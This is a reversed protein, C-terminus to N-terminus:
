FTVNLGVLVTKPLPYRGADVGMTGSLAPEPSMGTYKTLYFLNQGTVYASLNQMKIREVLAKPFRYTLTVERLALYDGKEYFRSSNNDLNASANNSRTINKKALQDAYYFKPLDSNTNTESWMDRVDTIINFSGQYQGLSRARLDNYLTHGVAYDFRAYLSLNKYDFSSSFGGTFKPFVNGIKVRDYSDIIGDGNVDAWHVDGPEIPLYGGSGKKDSDPGYLNAIADVRTGALDRVQDWDKYILEQKYGYIDGLGQGEQYGGVWVLKNQKPDWIQHGGQRNNEQGNNPLSIVKNSVTAVNATMSWNFGNGNRIINAKAEIELGQNRLSGLNTKISEFGTYGPLNINTLLDDTLRNFYDIVFNFRNDALGLDLGVEFAKSKEWRLDSNILATNLFGTNAYYQTQTAYLGYVDYNGLGSVNGNIGYSVRPKLTSVVRGVGANKFFDEEHINWGASVGPFFGWRNDSLKSIGDARVVASLLYKGQYDYNARGFASLMRYGQKYSSTYTRKSGVNLTPIDDSPSNETRAELTFANFDFAEGGAMVSLNHKEAYTDKYNLTVSHQQQVQKEHYSKAARTEDANGNEPKFKHDFSDQYNNLYYISSQEKLFLKNPIIDWQFGVTWTGRQTTNSRELKDKWYLPNGDRMSVGAAPTGDENYPNWTPWMSLSRYYLDSEAMWLAPKEAYSYSTSANVNLRELIQYSANLTGTFRQYATGVVQGQENYYGLSANFLAKDNGGTMGLYHDQTFAVKRFAADKMQGGYDKFILEKGSYPDTMSQWGETLLNENGDAYKVAFMDNNTGYGTTNDVQSLTRKGGADAYRKNGLRNYYLYEGAGLFDYGDRAFNLGGKFNYKISSTGKKGSKTTILIVGGNARAGYMATSAADKLVEMSEIDSPNIDNMSRVIGDIVVLASNNQNNLTAGGRLVIQPSSGPQGSANTVRLGAISGQLAQGANGLAAKALVKDDLKAISNTLTSRKQSSGYGTIVVEELQKSDEKLIVKIEDKTAPLEVTKYGIFSVQIKSNGDVSLVFKGDLDTTVGNVTGAEIVTAGIIPENLVDLVVGKVQVKQAFVVMSSLMLFFFLCQKKM